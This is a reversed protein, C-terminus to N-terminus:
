STRIIFILKRHNIINNQLGKGYFQEKCMLGNRSIGCGLAFRTSRRTKCQTAPTLLFPKIHLSHTIPPGESRPVFNKCFYEFIM